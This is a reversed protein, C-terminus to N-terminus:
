TFSFLYPFAQNDHAPLLHILLPLPMVFQILSHLFQLSARPKKYGWAKKSYKSEKKKRKQNHYKIRQHIVRDAHM